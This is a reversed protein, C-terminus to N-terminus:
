SGTSKVWGPTTVLENWTRLTLCLLRSLTTLLRCDAILDPSIVLRRGDCLKHEEARIDSFVARTDRKNFWFMCSGCCMDLITSESM